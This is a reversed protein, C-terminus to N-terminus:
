HSNRPFNEEIWVKYGKEKSGKKYVNFYIFGKNKAWERFKEINNVNRYKCPMHEKGHAFAICTYLTLGM